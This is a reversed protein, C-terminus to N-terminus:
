DDQGATARRNAEVDRINLESRREDRASAGLSMLADRKANIASLIADIRALEVIAGIEVDVAEAYEEDVEVMQKCIEESPSKGTGAVTSAKYALFKEAFLRKRVAHARLKKGLLEAAREGWYALDAPLAIFDTDLHTADVRTAEAPSRDQYQKKM